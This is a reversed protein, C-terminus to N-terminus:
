AANEVESFSHFDAHSLDLSYLSSLETVPHMTTTFVEPMQIALVTGYSLVVGAIDNIIRKRNEHALQYDKEVNGTPHSM